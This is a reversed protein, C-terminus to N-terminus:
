ETANSRERVVEPLYLLERLKWAPIVMSLGSNTKVKYSTEDNQGYPHEYVPEFLSYRICDIGLLWPGGKISIPASRRRATAEAGPLSWFVPSGSYGGLSRMEILFAEELPDGHNVEIMDPMLSIIGTRVTPQNLYRGEHHVSRGVMYVDDGPGIDFANIVDQSLFLSAPISYPLTPVGAMTEMHEARIGLRVIALDVAPDPHRV